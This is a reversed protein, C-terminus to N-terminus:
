SEGGKIVKRAKNTSINLQNSISNIAAMKKMGNALNAHYQQYIANSLLANDKSAMAAKISPIYIREGGLSFLLSVIRKAEICGLAIACDKFLVSSESSAMIYTKGGIEQMLTFASDQGILNILRKGTEPLFEYLDKYDIISQKM